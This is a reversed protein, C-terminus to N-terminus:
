VPAEIVENKNKKKKEGINDMKRDLKVLGDSIKDFIKALGETLVRFVEIGCWVIRVVTKMLIKIITM